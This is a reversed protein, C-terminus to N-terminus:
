LMECVIAQGRARARQYLGQLAPFWERAFELEEQREADDRVGQLTALDRVSWRDPCQALLYDGLRAVDGADNYGAHGPRYAKNGFLLYRSGFHVQQIPPLEERPLAERGYAEPALLCCLTEAAVEIEPIEAATFLLIEGVLLQWYHRDFALGRAIKALLPEEPGTHFRKTFADAAPLLTNCLPRCPEFSRQRWGAALPPCIQDEFQAADLLLFYLPM